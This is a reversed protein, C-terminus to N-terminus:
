RTLEAYTNLEKQHERTDLGRLEVHTSEAFQPFEVTRFGIHRAALALEDRSYFHLHDWYLYADLKGAYATLPDRYDYHKRLVGELGPFSLRLVGGMRLARFAEGLFILSDAQDLHELFDEAFAFDFHQEPLPLRECLNLRVYNERQHLGFDANLWGDLYNGGCGFHIKRFNRAKELVAPTSANIEVDLDAILAAAAVGQLHNKALIERLRVACDSDERLVYLGNAANLRYLAVLNIKDEFYPIRALLRALQSLSICTLADRRAAGARPLLTTDQAAGTRVGQLRRLVKQMTNM